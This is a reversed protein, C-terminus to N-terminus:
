NGGTGYAPNGAEAVDASVQREENTERLQKLDDNTLVRLKPPAPSQRGDKRFLHSYDERQSKLLEDRNAMHLAHVSSFGHSQATRLMKDYAGPIHLLGERLDRDWDVTPAASKPDSQISHPKMSGISGDPWPIKPWIKGSKIATVSGPTLSFRKCVDSPKAGNWLQRKVEERQAETLKSTRAM